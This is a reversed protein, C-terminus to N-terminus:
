MGTPFTEPLEGAQWTSTPELPEVARTEDIHIMAAHLGYLDLGYFGAPDPSRENYARLWGIFDLVDANRWMWAPFRRFGSLAEAADRDRGRGRVWRNVRHCDPWDGEVAVAVFGKDAILRKTLEARLRYFEHTGHSAEGILVVRAPGALEVLDDLDDAAGTLAHAAGGLTEALLRDDVGIGTRRDGSRTAMSGPDWALLPGSNAPM